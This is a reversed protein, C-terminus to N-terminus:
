VGDAAKHFIDPYRDKQDFTARPREVASVLLDLERMRTVERAIEAAARLQASRREIDYTRAKVRNELNGVLGRLQVTM